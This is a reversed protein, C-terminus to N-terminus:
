DILNGFIDAKHTSDTGGSIYFNINDEVGSQGSTNQTHNYAIVGAPLNVHDLQLFQVCCNGATPHPYRGVNFALNDRVTFPNVQGSAASIWIGDGDNFQNHVAVFSTPSQLEIARHTVVAGPNTQDFVTDQVTLRTGTVTDQVGFGKAIVHARSLTVHASTALTVAPTGTSTSQYCGSYTGGTTITIPACSPLTTTTPAVTTTTTSTSTTTAVTTTTTTSQSTSPNAHWWFSISVTNLAAGSQNLGRVRFTTATPSDVVVTSLINSGAIPSRATVQIEAPVSGLNHTFTCYGSTDTICTGMGGVGNSTQSEAPVIFMAALIVAVVATAAVVM